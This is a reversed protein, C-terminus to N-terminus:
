EEVLRWKWTAHGPGSGPEQVAEVPKHEVIYERAYYLLSRATSETTVGTEEEIQEALTPTELASEDTKELVEVVADVLESHTPNDPNFYRNGNDETM